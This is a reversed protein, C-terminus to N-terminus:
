YSEIAQLLSWKCGSFIGAEPVGLFFRTALLGMYNRVFGQALMFVGFLSICASLWIHPKFHRMAWNSPIELLVYPVFFIALAINSQQDTTNNLHLEEPMGLTLANSINVRDLFALIYLIVLIPIVRADIKAM